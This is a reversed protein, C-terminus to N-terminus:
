PQEQEPQGPLGLMPQPALQTAEGLPAAAEGFRPAPAGVPAPVGQAAQSPGPGMAAGPARPAGTAPAPQPGGPPAVTPPAKARARDQHLRSILAEYPKQRPATPKGHVSVGLGNDAANRYYAQIMNYKQNDYVQEEEPTPGGEVYSRIAARTGPRSHLMVVGKLIGVPARFMGGEQAESLMAQPVKGTRAIDALEDPDMRSVMAMATGDQLVAAAHNSDRWVQMVNNNAAPIGVQERNAISLRSIVQSIAREMLKKAPTAGYAREASVGGRKISAIQSAVDDTLGMQWVGSEPMSGLWAAVNSRLVPDNYQESLYTSVADDAAKIRSGDYFDQAKVGPNPDMGPVWRKPDGEPLGLRMAKDVLDPDRLVSSYVSRLLSRMDVGSPQDVGPARLASPAFASAVAEPVVAVFQKTLEAEAEELPGSFEDWEHQKKSQERLIRQQVMKTGTVALFTDTQKASMLASFGVPNVLLLKPDDTRMAWVGGKPYGNRNKWERMEERTLIPLDLNLSEVMSAPVPLMPPEPQTGVISEFETDGRIIAQKTQAVLAHLRDSYPSNQYDENVVDSMRILDFLQARTEMGNPVLDWQNNADMEETIWKWAAERAESITASDLERKELIRQKAAEQEQLLLAVEKAESEVQRQLALQHDQVNLQYERAEQTLVDQRAEQRQTEAKQQAQNYSREAVDAIRAMQAQGEEQQAVQAQGVQTVMKNMAKGFTQMFQQMAAVLNSQGGQGGRGMAAQVLANRDIRGPRTAM